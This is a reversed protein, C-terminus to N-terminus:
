LVVSLQMIPSPYGGIEFIKADTVNSVFFYSNLTAELPIIDMVFKIFILRAM